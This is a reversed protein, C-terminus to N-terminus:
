VLTEGEVLLTVFESVKENQELNLERRTESLGLNSSSSFSKVGHGLSINLHIDLFSDFKLFIVFTLTVSVSL